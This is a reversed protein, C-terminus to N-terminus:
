IYYWLPKSIFFIMCFSAICKILTLSNDFRWLSTSQHPPLLFAFQKLMYDSMNRSSDESRIVDLYLQTQLNLVIDIFGHLATFFFRNVHESM